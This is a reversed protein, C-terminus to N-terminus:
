GRPVAIQSYAVYALRPTRDLTVLGWWEENFTGDPYPGGGPAVGGTDQVSRSGGPDKWWEDAFEFLFGGLCTGGPRVSSRRVLEETLVETAKAQAEQDERWARADFADAGYEAVFLPRGSRAAHADFVDGFGLGRYINIGWVDVDRLSNIIDLSPVDGYISAVPHAPDTEKVLRAAVAIRAVSDHSNMGVYLGNYNWENGITWMLIAPHDKVALVRNVVAEPADGGYGYVDNLVWIGRTWLIDLVTRDTITKYTRVANIGARAMLDADHEVFGGFDLDAPHAGGRPVPNWCVGKLHLPAGDVLVRRGAVEIRAAPAGPRPDLAACSAAAAPRHCTCLMDSTGSIAADCPRREKVDCNDAMEEAAAVCAHDFSQCYRDCRGGYPGTLVLATCM